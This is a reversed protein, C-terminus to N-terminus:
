PRPEPDADLPASQRSRCNRRRDRRHIPRWGCGGRPRSSPLAWGGASDDNRLGKRTGSVQETDDPRQILVAGDLDCRGNQEPPNAYVNYTAQCVPCTRRGAIRCLLKNHDMRICVATISTGYGQPAQYGDLWVAQELTRPFGDLIYGNFTDPEQLRTEVIQCVLSDPVLEGRRMLDQAIRGLSTGRSVHSRLVDGTSIHPIGWLKEMERAQTGKGVGPAGLLLIRGPGTEFGVQWGMGLSTAYSIRTQDAMQYCNRETASRACSRPAKM